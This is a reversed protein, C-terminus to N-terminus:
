FPIIAEPFCAEWDRAIEAKEEETQEPEDPYGVFDPNAPEYQGETQPHWKFGKIAPHM